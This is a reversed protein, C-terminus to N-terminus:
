GSRRWGGSRRSRSRCAAIRPYLLRVKSRGPRQWDSPLAWRNWSSTRGRQRSTIVRIFRAPGPVLEQGKKSGAEIRNTIQGRTGDDKPWAHAPYRTRDFLEYTHTAFIGYAKSFTSKGADDALTPMTMSSNRKNNRGLRNAPKWDWEPSTSSFISNESDVGGASLTQTEIRPQNFLSQCFSVRLQVRKAEAPRLWCCPQLRIV